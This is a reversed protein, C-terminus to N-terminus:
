ELEGTQRGAVEALEKRGHGVQVVFLGALGDLYQRGHDDWIRAGEGRVIIPVDQGEYFGSHRAFHLWLHDRAADTRRTGRPTVGGDDFSAPQTTPTTTM